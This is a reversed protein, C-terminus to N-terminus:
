TAWQQLASRVMQKVPKPRNRAVGARTDDFAARMAGGFRELVHRHWLQGVQVLHSLQVTTADRASDEASAGPHADCSDRWGQGQGQPVGAELAM